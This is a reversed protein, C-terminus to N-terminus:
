PCSSCTGVASAAPAVDVGPVKGPDLLLDVWVKRREFIFRRIVGDPLVFDPNRDSRDLSFLLRNRPM